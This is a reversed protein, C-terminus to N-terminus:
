NPDRTTKFWHVSMRMKNRQVQWSAKLKGWSTQIRKKRELFISEISRKDNTMIWSMKKENNGTFLFVTSEDLFIESSNKHQKERM